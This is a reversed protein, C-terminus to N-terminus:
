VVVEKRIKGPYSVQPRVLAQRGGKFEAVCYSEVLIILIGAWGYRSIITKGTEEPHKVRFLLFRRAGLKGLAVGMKIRIPRLDLEVAVSIKVPRQFNRMAGLYWCCGSMDCLTDGYNCLKGMGILCRCYVGAFFKKSKRERIILPADSGNPGIREGSRKFLIIFLMWWFTFMGLLVCSHITM